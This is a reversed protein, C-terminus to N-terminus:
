SLDAFPPSPAPRGEEAPRFYADYWMDKKPPRLDAAARNGALAAQGDPSATLQFLKTKLSDSYESLPGGNHPSVGMQAAVDKSAPMNLLNHPDDISFLGMKELKKLIFSDKLAQREIIHHEQFAPKDAM